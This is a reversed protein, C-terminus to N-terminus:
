RVYLYGDAYTTITSLLQVPTQGGFVFLTGDQMVTCTHLARETATQGLLTHAGLSQIAMRNTGDHRACATSAPAFGFEGTFGGMILADGTVPDAVQTHFSVGVALTGAATWTTGDFRVCDTTAASIGSTGINASGGTVLVNGNALVSAGFFARGQNPAFILSPLPMVPAPTFSNTAPVYYECTQTYVPVDILSWGTSISTGGSVGALLLIRGDPLTLQGHGARNSAMAPGATWTNTTPDYLETTQQATALRGAWNTAANQFDQFGGTVLVRGSPLLSIGHGMRPTSMSAAPAITDTVPDYLDCTATGAANTTSGGTILVRGDALRVAAHFARPVSLSPGSRLTRTLPSFLATTATAVPSVISGTAGGTILVDQRNDIPSRWLATAAHASRAVPPTQAPVSRFQDAVEWQLRSTKGIAFANGEIVSGNLFFPAYGIQSPDNPLVFSLRSNGTSDLVFFLVTYVPSLVDLCVTGVIPLPSTTPGIGSSLSLFGPGNPATPSGIDIDTRGGIMAPTNRVYPNGIGNGSCLGQAPLTGAAAVAAAFAAFVPGRTPLRRM